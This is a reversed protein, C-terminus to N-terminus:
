KVFARQIHSSLYGVLALPIVILFAGGFFDSHKLFRITMEGPPIQDIITSHFTERVSHEVQLSMM